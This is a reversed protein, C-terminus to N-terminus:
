SYKLYFAGVKAKVNVMVSGVVNLNEGSVVMLPMVDKNIMREGFMQRFDSLECVTVCSGTDVEMSM